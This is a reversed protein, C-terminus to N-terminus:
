HRASEDDHGVLARVLPVKVILYWPVALAGWRAPRFKWHRLNEKALEAESHKAGIPVADLVEGKANVLVRFKVEADSRDAQPRTVVEPPRIQKELYGDPDRPFRRRAAFKRSLIEFKVTVLTSFPTPGQSSIYPDYEWKRVAELAAAALLPEGEIVHAEAVKGKPNVTIRLEVSGQIYNVRAIPSYEPKVTHILLRNATQSDLTEVSQPAPVAEAGHLGSGALLVALLFPFAIVSGCSAPILSRIRNM